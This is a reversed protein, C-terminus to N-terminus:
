FVNRLDKFSRKLTQKQCLLNRLFGLLGPFGLLEQLEWSSRPAQLAVESGYWSGM